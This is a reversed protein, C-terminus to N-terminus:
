EAGFFWDDDFEEDYDDDDLYEEDYAEDQYVIDDLLGQMFMGLMANRYGPPLQLLSRTERIQALLGRDHNQLALKEAQKLHKQATTTDDRRLAIFGLAWYSLGPEQDHEIAKWLFEEGIDPRPSLALAHGLRAYIHEEPPALEIGQDLWHRAVDPNTELCTFGLSIYFVYPLDSIQEEAQTLVEQAKNVDGFAVWAYILQSYVNLDGNAHEQAKELHEVGEDVEDMDLYCAGIRALLAGNEPQYALAQQLYQLALDYESWQIHFDAQNLYYDVLAHTAAVNDPDLELVREWYKTASRAEWWYSNEAVVEGMQLLAPIYDPSRDLIRELENQAARLRGDNILGEVLAMRTELHDPNWKVALKYVHIAEEYEGARVYTEATHKWLLAVEDDTVADPHDDRRPRRRLAERWYEAARIYDEAREHALALNYALRFSGGEVERAREWHEHALDWQGAVAAQYGARQHLQSVLLQLQNEDPRFRIAEQAAAMAGEEDGEILRREALRHFSEGLNDPLYPADFGAAVAQGWHHRATDWDEEARAALVGAYYHAVGEETPTPHGDLVQDLRHQAAEYEDRDLAAIGRWLAPADDDFTYPRRQLTEAERLMARQEPVVDEWAPHATPDEGQEQLALALGYAARAAFASESKRAKEYNRIAIDLNGRRHAVLARHYLFRPSQPDLESARQLDKQGGEVDQHTGYLRSLARRFYAEALTAKPLEGADLSRLRKWAEIAQDYDGKLFAQHGRKRLMALGQRSGGRKKRRRKSM